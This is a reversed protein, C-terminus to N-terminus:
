KKSLHDLALKAARVDEEHGGMDVFVIRANDVMVTDSSTMWERAQALGATPDRGLFRLVKDRSMILAALNRDRVNPDSGPHPKANQAARANSIEKDLQPLYENEYYGPFEHRAQVYHGERLRYVQPWMANGVFKRHFLETSSDLYDFLILEEKGDHSLDAFEADERRSYLGIDFDQSTIKRSADQWYITLFEVDPGTSSRVALEYKGDGAPYWDFEDINSENLGGDEPDGGTVFRFVAAEKLARLTKINAENWPLDDIEAGSGASAFALMTMLLVILVKKM